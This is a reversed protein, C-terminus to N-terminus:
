VDGPAPVMDRVEPPLRERDEATLTSLDIDIRRVDEVDISAGLGLGGAGSGAAFQAGLVGGGAIPATIRPISLGLSQFVIGFAGFPDFQWLLHREFANQSEFTHVSDVKFDPDLTFLTLYGEYIIPPAAPLNAAIDRCGYALANLVGVNVTGLFILGGGEVALYPLVPQTNASLDYNFLNCTTAYNGPKLDEFPHPFPFPGNDNLLRVNGKQFGCVVKCGFLHLTQAEAPAATLLSALAILALAGLALGPRFPRFGFRNM